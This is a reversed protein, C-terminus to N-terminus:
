DWEGPYYPEDQQDCGGEVVRATPEGHKHLLEVMKQAREANEHSCCTPLRLRRAEEEFPENRFISQCWSTDGIKVHVTM